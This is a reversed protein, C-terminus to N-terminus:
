EYRLAEVPKLRSARWAPYLGFVLSVLLGFGLAILVLDADIVPTLTITTMARGPMMMGGGGSTSTLLSYMNQGFLLAVLYGVLLGLAGGILGFISVETLFITMISRRSTGLAKLIGIERTREMLSVLMINMIGIGAVILSIGAISTLFTTITSFSTDLSGTILAPNRINVKMGYTEEYYDSVAEGVSDYAESSSDTLLLVIADAETANTPDFLELAKQVPLYVYYDSPSPNSSMGMMMGGGPFFNSGIEYLVADVRATYTLNVSNSENTWVFTMDSAFDVDEAVAYGIVFSTDTSDLSISGNQPIFSSNYLEMYDEFDVGILTTSINEESSQGDFLTVWGSQIIIPVALEIGTIEELDAIHTFNFTASSDDGPERFGGSGKNIQVVNASLGENLQETIAADFGNGLSVMAVVAAIGIVVGLTTLVSRM